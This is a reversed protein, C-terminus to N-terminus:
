IRGEQKMYESFPNTKKTLTTIDENKFTGDRWQVLAKDEDVSIVQGIKSGKSVVDGTQIHYVISDTFSKEKVMNEGRSKKVAGWAIKACKEKDGGDSRCSAYTKKLIDKEHEPIDGPEPSEYGGYMLGETLEKEFIEKPWRGTIKKHVSACYAQPDSKDKNQIICDNFDKYQGFPM